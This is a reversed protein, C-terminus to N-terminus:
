PREPPQQTVIENALAAHPGRPARALYREAAKRAAQDDGRRITCELLRGSAQDGLPGQPWDELYREFWREAEGPQGAEFALRGLSFLADGTLRDKPFRTVLSEFARRADAQAGSHRAVDGLMLLRRADLGGCLDDWGAKTAIAHAQRYAGREALAFWDRDPTTATASVRAAHVVAGPADPAPVKEEEPHGADPFTAAVSEDETGAGSAAAATEIRLIGRDVTLQHGAALPVGAGLSGGGIIVSGEHVVVNLQGALWTVVFRTGTVRVRFPGAHVLWLTSAGHVVHADLRGRDLVVEAGTDTLRQLRGASGARFTVASGDWFRLPLDSRADTFIPRGEDGAGLPRGGGAFRPSARHSALGLALAVAAAATVLVKGARLRRRVARVGHGTHGHDSPAREDQM